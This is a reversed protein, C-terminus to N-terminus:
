RSGRGSRGASAAAALRLVAGPKAHPPGDTADTAGKPVGALRRRAEDAFARVVEFGVFSRGHALAIVGTTGSGCFPTELRYGRREHREPRVAGDDAQAHPRPAEGHRELGDSRAVGLPADRLDGVIRERDMRLRGDKARLGDRKFHYGGYKAPERMAADDYFWTASKSFLLVHEHSRLPCGVSARPTVNQREDIVESRWFWGRAQLALAARAPVGM